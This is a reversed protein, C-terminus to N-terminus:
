FLRKKFRTAARMVNDPAERPWARKHLNNTTPSRTLAAPVRAAGLLVNRLHDKRVQGLRPVQEGRAALEKGAEKATLKNLRRCPIKRNM